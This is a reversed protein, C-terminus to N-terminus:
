IMHISCGGIGESAAAGFEAFDRHIESKADSTTNQNVFQYVIKQFIAAAAAYKPHWERM